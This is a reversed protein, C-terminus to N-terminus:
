VVKSVHVTEPFMEELACLKRKAVNVVALQLQSIRKEVHDELMTGGRQQGGKGTGAVAGGGTEGVEKDISGLFV